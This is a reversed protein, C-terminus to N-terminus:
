PNATVGHFRTTEIDSTNKLILPQGNQVEVVTDLFTIDRANTCTFGNAAQLHVNSSTIRGVPMERLGTISGANKAGRATINSFLLDRYRPTGEGVPQLDEPRDGGAYFTTVVIPDVVDEMVINSVSIGEVVGGRGRQSKIRIGGLTGHFVCNSIAVNRVGGSMESGISVGGHGHWMVCNSITIDEDPRGLKRGLENTGSKLAICDDGTDIRCNLIQVNRCCEPDIGDTNHANTAPSQITVGDVRVSECLSPHVTWEAANRLNVKEIVVDRCRVFRILHPRGRSLKAAEARDEDTKPGPPFKRPNNLRVRKWWLAGQGDITGRGTVTVNEADTAYILPQMLEEGDGWISASTPYDGPNESGLLVAGAEVQLTVHSKLRVTGTLYRGPPVYVTGGGADACADAARNLAATELTTGNGVAGFDRV